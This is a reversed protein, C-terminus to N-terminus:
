CAGGERLEQIERDLRACEDNYVEDSIPLHHCLGAKEAFFCGKGKVTDLIIATPKGACAKAADIADNIAVVDHGNVTMTNWGFERFKAEPNGLDMIDKTYGDLQQKNWDVLVTLKDIKHQAAFMVAEWVQGEDCEGDGVICYTRYDKGMVRAGAASGVAVSIGTGLSGTSYDIGPTKQRDVHSPLITGGQNMTKLEEPDFFGKLALTAYLSPGCHGKSLVLRDRDEMRPDKPDYRMQVGYLVALAEVMSMAGGIHGAGVSHIALLTKKRIECCDIKLQRVQEKSLM